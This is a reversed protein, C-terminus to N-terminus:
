STRLRAAPDPPMPGGFDSGPSEPALIPQEEEPAGGEEVAPHPDPENEDTLSLLHAFDWSWFWSLFLTLDVCFPEFGAFVANLMANSPFSGTDQPAWQDGTPRDRALRRTMLDYAKDAVDEKGEEEYM